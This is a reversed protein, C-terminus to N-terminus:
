YGSHTRLFEIEAPTSDRGLIKNRHPFRNFQKIISQHEKAYKLYNQAIEKTENPSDEVLKEFLIVNRNQDDLNESHELPLYLFVRETLTLKQDFGKEIADKSANIALIDDEYMKPSNRYLNRSFQDILIVYALTGKPSKLWANLEGKVAKNRLNEFQAKIQNDIEPNIKWWMARNFLTAPQNAYDFWYNLIHQINKDEVEKQASIAIFTSFLGILLIFFKKSM